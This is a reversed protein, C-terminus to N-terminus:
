SLTPLTIKFETGKDPENCVTITGNHARVIAAAITLGLGTGPLTANSRQRGRYFAEFIHELDEKAIGYGNDIVFILLQDKQKDLKLTIIGDPAPRGYRLANDMLVFLLQKIRNKDVRIGMREDSAVMLNITREDNARARTQEISELAIEVLDCYQLKLPHRDDLRALTLIDNILNTMRETEGKMRGLIHARMEPDDKAKRTLLDTFGRISTLPTRLQHSADSFFQHFREESANQMEEAHELRTVMVDISGSLRDIEDQPPLRLPLRSRQQLDGVAIAQAADTLQWLPRLLITALLFTLATGICIMLAAGFLIVMFSEQRAVLLCTLIVVSTLLLSYIFTIQVRMSFFPRLWAPSQASGKSRALAHTPEEAPSPSGFTKHKSM